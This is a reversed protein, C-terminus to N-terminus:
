WCKDSSGTWIRDINNMKQTESKLTKENGKRSTSTDCLRRRTIMKKKKINRSQREDFSMLGGRGFFTKHLAFRSRECLNSKKTHSSSPSPIFALCPSSSFTFVKTRWTTAGSPSRRLRIAMYIRYVCFLFFIRISVTDTTKKPLWFGSVMTYVNIVDDSIDHGVLIIKKKRKRLFARVKGEIERLGIM